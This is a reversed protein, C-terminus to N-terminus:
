TLSEMHQNIFADVREIGKQTCIGRIGACFFYVFIKHYTLDQYDVDQSLLSIVGAFIRRYIFYDIYPLFFGESAGREFFANSEKMQKERHEKMYNVVKPYKNIDTFFLASANSAFELQVRIIELLTDMTDHSNESFEKMHKEREKFLEMIVELLLDEKNSYLEYLTRKSIGLGKAIDDMRVARIGYERFRKSAEALITPKLNLKYSTFEKM